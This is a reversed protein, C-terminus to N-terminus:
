PSQPAPKASTTPAPRPDEFIKILIMTFDQNTTSRHHPTGRPVVILDGKAIEVKQGGAIKPGRWEGPEVEKPSELTGGLTLTATGDLVYYVDDSADHIEANAAAINNEHQIAVRLEMGTGGILEEVKNSPQLKKQLDSLSQARMVVVDRIPHVPKKETQAAAQFAASILIASVILLKRVTESRAEERTGHTEQDEAIWEHTEHSKTSRNQHRVFSSGRFMRFSVDTVDSREVEM